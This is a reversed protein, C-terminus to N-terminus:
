ELGLGLYNSIVKKAPTKWVVIPIAKRNETYSAVASLLSGPAIGASFLGPVLIPKETSSRTEKGKDTCRRRYVISGDANIRNIKNTEVCEWITQEWSRTVFSVQSDGSAEKVTEVLAEIEQAGTKNFTMEYAKYTWLENPVHLWRAVQKQELMMNPSKAKLDSFAEMTAWYAAWRPGRWVRRQELVKHLMAAYVYEEDHAAAVLSASALSYGFSDWALDGITELSKPELGQHEARVYKQYLQFTKAFHGKLSAPNGKLYLDELAILNKLAQPYKRATAVWTDFGKKPITTVLEKVASPLAEYERLFQKATHRARAFVINASIRGFENLNMASLEKQFRAPDLRNADSSAFAYAGLRNMAAERWTSQGRNEPSVTVGIQSLVFIARVLESPPDAQRDLWWELDTIYLSSSDLIIPNGTCGLGRAKASDFAVEKATRRMAGPVMNQSGSRFEQCTKERLEKTKPEGAHVALQYVDSVLDETLGTANMLGQRWNAAWEQRKKFNPQKCSLIAAARLSKWDFSHSLAEFDSHFRRNKSIEAAGECWDPVKPKATEVGPLPTVKKDAELDPENEEVMRQQYAALAATVKEQLEKAEAKAQTFDREPEKRAITKYFRDLGKFKGEFWSAKALRRDELLAAEIEGTKKEFAKRFMKNKYSEALPGVKAAFTKLFHTEKEIDWNPDKAQIKPLLKKLGELKKTYSEPRGLNKEAALDKELAEAKKRFNKIYSKAKSASLDRSDEFARLPGVLALSFGLLIGGYRM